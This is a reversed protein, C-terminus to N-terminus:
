QESGEPEDDDDQTADDAADGPWVPFTMQDVMDQPQTALWGKGDPTDLFAAFDQTLYKPYNWGGLLTKYALVDPADSRTINYDQCWQRLLYRYASVGPDKPKRGLVPGSSTVPYHPQRAPPRLGPKPEGVPSAVKALKKLYASIEDYHEQTLRLEYTQSGISFILNRTALTRKEGDAWDLDDYNELVQPM